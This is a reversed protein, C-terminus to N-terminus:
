LRTPAHGARVRLCCPILRAAGIAQPVDQPGMQGVASTALCFAELAGPGTATITARSAEGQGQAEGEAGNTTTM